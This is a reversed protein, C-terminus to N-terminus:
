VAIELLRVGLFFDPLGLFFQLGLKSVLFDCHYEMKESIMHMQLDKENRTEFDFGRFTTM